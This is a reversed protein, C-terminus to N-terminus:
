QRGENTGANNLSYNFVPYDDNGLNHDHAKMLIDARIFSWDREVSNLM